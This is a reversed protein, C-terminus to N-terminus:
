VKHVLALEEGVLAFYLNQLQHVYHITAVIIEDKGLLLEWGDEGKVIELGLKLIYNDSFDNKKRKGFKIMWRDTLPIPFAEDSYCWFYSTDKDLGYAIRNFSSDIAMVPKIKDYFDFLNGIRLENIKIM